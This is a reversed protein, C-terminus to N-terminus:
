TRSSVMLKRVKRLSAQMVLISLMVLPIGVRDSRTALALGVGMPVYMAKSLLIFGIAPPPFKDRRAKRRLKVLM